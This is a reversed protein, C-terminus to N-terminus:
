RNQAPIMCPYGIASFYEESFPIVLHMGAYQTISGKVYDVIEDVTKLSEPVEMTETTYYKGSDKFVWVEVKRM